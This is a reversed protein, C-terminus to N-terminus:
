APFDLFVHCVTWPMEVIFVALAVIIPSADISKELRDCFKSRHQLNHISDTVNSLFSNSQM